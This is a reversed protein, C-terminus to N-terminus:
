RNVCFCYIWHMCIDLYECMLLDYAHKRYVNIVIQKNRIADGDGIDGKGAAMSGMLSAVLTGLFRGLFEAKQGKAKNKVTASVVKTLLTREKHSKVKVLKLYRIKM